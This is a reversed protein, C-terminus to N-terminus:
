SAPMNAKHEFKVYYIIETRCYCKCSADGIYPNSLYFQWYWRNNPSSNYASAYNIDGFINQKGQGELKGTRMYASVTHDKLSGWNLDM